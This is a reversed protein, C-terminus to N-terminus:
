RRRKRAVGIRAAVASAPTGKPTIPPPSTTVATQVQRPAPKSSGLARLMTLRYVVADLGEVAAQYAARLEGNGTARSLEELRRLMAEIEDRESV